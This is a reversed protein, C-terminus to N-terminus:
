LVSQITYRCDTHLVHTCVARRLCGGHFSRSRNRMQHKLRGLRDSKVKTKNSSIFDSLEFYSVFGNPSGLLIYGEVNTKAPNLRTTKVTLAAYLLFVVLLRM